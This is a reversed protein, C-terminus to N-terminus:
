KVQRPAPGKETPPPGSGGKEEAKLLLAAVDAWLQAFAKPEDAPLNALAAADRLGALDTDKQWHLLHQRVWARDAPTTRELQKTYRALDARLWDRAQRRLRAREPDDLKAADEGRGAAALAAVCAANYRHQAQLDDALNPEAAFAAADLGAATHPLAKAQAVLALDLRAQGDAPRLEGKLFAVLKAEAAAAMGSELEVRAQGGGRKVANHARAHDVRVRSM